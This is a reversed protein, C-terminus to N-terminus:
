VLLTWTLTSQISELLRTTSMEKCVLNPLRFNVLPTQSIRAKSIVDNWIKTRLIDDIMDDNVHLM